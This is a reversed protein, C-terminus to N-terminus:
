NSVERDLVVFKANAASTGLLYFEYRHSALMTVIRSQALVQSQGPRTVFLYTRTGPVHSYEAHDGEEWTLPDADAPAVPSPNSVYFLHVTGLDAAHRWAMLTNPLPAGDPPIEGMNPTTNDFQVVKPAVKNVVLTIDAGIGLTFTRKALLTGKCRRPDPAFVRLVKEGIVPTAYVKGGYPVKSRLETGNLCIDVKGGPRGNVIALAGREVAAAPVALSSLALTAAAAGFVLSRAVRM